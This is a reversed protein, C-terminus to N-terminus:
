RSDGASLYEPKFARFPLGIQDTARFDLQPNFKVLGIVSDSRFGPKMGAKEMTRLLGHVAQWPIPFFTPKKGGAAAIQTLIDRFSLIDQSAATIPGSVAPRQECLHLLLACLDEEHTLPQKERGTGILPVVPLKLAGALKGVMGGAGKGYTLGPRVIYAGLAAAEKEVEMKARGYLSEAGEYASVTSIFIITGVGAEKAARLLRKSGEVNTAWIEAQTRAELDWACHILADLGRLDDAKIEGTLTFPIGHPGAAPYARSMEVPTWGHEKFYAVVRSGMYGRAGTVACRKDM